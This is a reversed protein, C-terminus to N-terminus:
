GRGCELAALAGIGSACIQDHGASLAGLVLAGAAQTTSQSSRSYFTLTALNANRVGRATGAGAKKAVLQKGNGVAHVGDDLDVPGLAAAKDPM